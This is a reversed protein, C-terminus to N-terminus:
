NGLHKIQDIYQPLTDWSITMGKEAASKIVVKAFEKLAFECAKISKKRIKAWFGSQKKIYEDKTETSIAHKLNSSEKLLDGKEEETFESNDENIYEEINEIYTLLLLQQSFNFRSSIADDDVIKFDKYFEQQYQKEVQDDYITQVLNYDEIIKIWNDAFAILSELKTWQKGANIDIKSAPKFEIIYGHNGNSLEQRIVEFYFDSNDDKDCLKFIKDSVPIVKVLNSHKDAFPQLTQLIALPINKKM